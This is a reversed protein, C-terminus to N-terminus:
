IEEGMIKSLIHGNLKLNRKRHSSVTLIYLEGIMKNLEVSPINQYDFRCHSFYQWPRRVSISDPSVSILLTKHNWKIKTFLDISYYETSERWILNDNNTEAKLYDIFEEIKM